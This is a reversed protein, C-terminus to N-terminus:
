SPLSQEEGASPFGFLAATLAMFFPLSATRAALTPADLLEVSLVHDPLQDAFTEAEPTFRAPTAVLLRALGHPLAAGVVTALSPMTVPTAGQHLVAVGVREGDPGYGIFTLPEPAAESLGPGRFFRVGEGQLLEALALAFREPDAGQWATASTRIRLQREEWVLAQRWTDYLRREGVFLALMGATLALFAAPLRVPTHDEFVILEFLGLTLALGTVWAWGSVPYPVLRTLARPPAILLLLRRQLPV